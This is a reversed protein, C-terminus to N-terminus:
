CHDTEPLSNVDFHNVHYCILGFIMKVDVLRTLQNIEQNVEFCERVDFPIMSSFLRVTYHTSPKRKVLTRM